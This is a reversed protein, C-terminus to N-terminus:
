MHDIKKDKKGMILDKIWGPANSVAAGKELCKM